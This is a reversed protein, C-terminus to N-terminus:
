ALLIDARQSEARLSWPADLMLCNDTEGVRGPRVLTSLLKFNM